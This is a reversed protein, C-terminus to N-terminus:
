LSLQELNIKKGFFEKAMNEFSKTFDSIYFLDENIINEQNLLDNNKLQCKIDNAVILPTDIINVKGQFFSDVQKYIIPYHTCGLILSDINKLSKNTLYHELTVKSIKSKSLGEEIIPVLLPTSLSSVVIHKNLKRLKKNYFKSNVTAKTAILGINSHLEYAVKNIVPDIVNFVLARGNVRKVIENWANSTASNCAVVIAKANQELFYDVINLSYRVLADKSKDGYPLHVTDGFYITRENPMIKKIAHMITLGGMGSDFVGIPSEKNVEFLSM